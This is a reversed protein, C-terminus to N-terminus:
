HVRRVHGQWFPERLPKKTIKGAATKPLPESRIEVSKPCKYAAILTRCHAILEEATLSAGEALVVVAHVAEGWKPDPIGIAAAERVAPHRHIANEVEASYINEGGSVIMDKIRDVIYVFGDADMHAADGSHMWGGRLAASSAAPDAWYGLMINSGKICIEGVEGPAADNDDPRAIRVECVASARGVSLRKAALPGQLVHYCAPLTTAMGATETMGYAHVFKWSPLKEMAALLVTEPIPSGGYICQRVSGLDHQPFAPHTLLMNVMTPILVTSNVQHAPIAEMVPLPEFKPLMVNTGACATTYWLYAAGSLHFFGGVHLHVVHEEGPPLAAMWSLALSVANKHSLMVGKPYGTTGGTYFIAYLDDGRRASEAVGAIGAIGAIGQELDVMAPRAAGTGIYVLAKIAPCQAALELAVDVFNEDVFLISAGSHQLAYANEVAALRINLPVAVAGAWPIAFLVEAYTDSNMALIAAREGVGVGHAHLLGAIRPLRAAIQAWTRSRGNARCGDRQPHLRAARRVFQTIQM